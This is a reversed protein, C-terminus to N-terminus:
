YVRTTSSSTFFLLLLNNYGPLLQVQLFSCFFITLLQIHSLSSYLFIPETVKYFTHNMGSNDFDKFIKFCTISFNFGALAQQKNKLFNMTYVNRYYSLFKEIFKKRWCHLSTANKIYHVIKPMCPKSQLFITKCKSNM